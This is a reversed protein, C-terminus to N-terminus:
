RKDKTGTKLQSKMVCVSVIVKGMDFSSTLIARNRSVTVGLASLYGVYHGVFLYTKLYRRFRGSDISPDRLSVADLELSDRDRM